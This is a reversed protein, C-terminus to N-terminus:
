TVCSQYKRYVFNTPACGQSLELSSMHGVFVIQEYNQDSYHSATDGTSCQIWTFLHM